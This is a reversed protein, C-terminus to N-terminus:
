AFEPFITDPTVKRFKLTYPLILFSMKFAEEKSIRAGEAKLREAVYFANPLQAEEM